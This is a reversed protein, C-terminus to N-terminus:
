LALRARWLGRLDGCFACHHKLEAERIALVATGNAVRLPEVHRCPEDFKSESPTEMGVVQACAQARAPAAQVHGPRHVHYVHVPRSNLIPVPTYMYVGTGVVM